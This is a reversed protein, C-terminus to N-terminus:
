CGAITRADGSWLLQARTVPRECTAPWGRAQLCAAIRRGRERLRGHTGGVTAVSAAATGTAGGALSATTSNGAMGGAVGGAIGGIIAFPLAEGFGASLIDGHSMYSQDVYARCALLDQQYVPDAEVQAPVDPQHQHGSCGTLLLIALTVTILTKV